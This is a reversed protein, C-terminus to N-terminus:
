RYPPLVREAREGLLVARPDRVGDNLVLAQVLMHAPMVPIGEVVFRGGAVPANHIVMLPQVPWELAREVLQTEFLLSRVSRSRDGGRAADGHTLRGGEAHVTWKASWLKSDVVYVRAAPTVVIHDANARRAGPIRRDHLVKWGAAELPALLAATRAEGVAGADCAAAQADARRTHAKM